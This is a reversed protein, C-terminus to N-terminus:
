IMELNASSSSLRRDLGFSLLVMIFGQRLNVEVQMGNALKVLVNSFLEVAFADLSVRVEQNPGFEDEM